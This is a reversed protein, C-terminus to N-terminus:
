PRQGEQKTTLNLHELILHNLLQPISCGAQKAADRLARHQREPIKTCVSRLGSAQGQRNYKPAETAIARCEAWYATDRDPHEEVEVRAMETRCWAATMRHERLRQELDVTVGVYLLVGAGDFIRYLAAPHDRLSRSSEPTV